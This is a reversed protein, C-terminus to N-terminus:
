HVNATLKQKLMMIQEEYHPALIEKEYDTFIDSNRLQELHAEARNIHSRILKYNIM